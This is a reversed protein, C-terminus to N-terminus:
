GNIKDEGRECTVCLDSGQNSCRNCKSRVKKYHDHRVLEMHGGSECHIHDHVGEFEEREECDWCVYEFVRDKMNSGRKNPHNNIMEFEITAIPMICPYEQMITIDTVAFLASGFGHTKLNVENGSLFFDKWVAFWPDDAKIEITVHGNVESM